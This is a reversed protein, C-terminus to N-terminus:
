SSFNDPGILPFYPSHAPSSHQSDKKKHSIKIPPSRSSKLHVNEVHLKIKDKRNTTHNCFECKFPKEATHVTDM